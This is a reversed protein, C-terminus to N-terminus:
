VCFVGGFSLLNLEWQDLSFLTQKVTIIIIIFIDNKCLAIEGIITNTVVAWYFLLTPFIMGIKSILVNFSLFTFSKRLTVLNNHGLALIGTWNQIGWEAHKSKVQRAALRGLLEQELAPAGKGKTGRISHDVPLLAERGGWMLSFRPADQSGIAWHLSNPPAM